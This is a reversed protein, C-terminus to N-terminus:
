TPRSEQLGHWAIGRAPEPEDAPPAVGSGAHEDTVDLLNAFRDPLVTVSKIGAADAAVLVQRGDVEVLHVRCRQPLSLSEITRLHSMAGGPLDRRTLWQRLLWLAVVGIALILGAGEAWDRLTQGPDFESSSEPLTFRSLPEAAPVNFKAPTIGDEHADIGQKRHTPAADANVVGDGAVPVVRRLRSDATGDTTEIWEASRVPRAPTKENLPRLAPGNQTHTHRADPAPGSVVQPRIARDTENAMAFTSAILMAGVAICAWRRRGIGGRTASRTSASFHLM